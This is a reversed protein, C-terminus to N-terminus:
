VHDSEYIHFWMMWDQSTVFSKTSPYLRHVINIAIVPSVKRFYPSKHHICLHTTPHNHIYLVNHCFTKDTLCRIAFHKNILYPALMYRAVFRKIIPLAREKDYKQKIDYTYCSQIYKSTLSLSVSDKGSLFSDIDMLMNKSLGNM